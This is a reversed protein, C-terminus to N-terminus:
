VSLSSTTAPSPPLQDGSTPGSSVSPLTPREAEVLLLQGLGNVVPVWEAVRSLTRVPLRLRRVLSPLVVDIPRASVTRFYPHVEAIVESRRFFYCYIGGDSYRASQPAKRWLRRLEHNHTSFVFRGDSRIATAALRYMALRHERTPLNSVLTSLCCTFERAVKLRTVDAHVLGTSSLVLRRRVMEQLSALSFDVALVSQCREALVSTYLGTGCGLELVTSNRNLRLAAITPAMEQVDPHSREVSHAYENEAKEDRLNREHASEEDLEGEDLM